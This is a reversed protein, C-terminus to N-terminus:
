YIGYKKLKNYLTTRSLGLRKAAKTLNHESDDWITIVFQKEMEDLTLTPAPESTGSLCLTDATWRTSQTMLVTREITDELRAFEGSRALTILREMAEDTVEPEPRFYTSAYRKVLSLIYTNVVNQGDSAVDKHLIDARRKNIADNLIQILRDNNWPKQVFDDAGQKLSEVALAVDGFATILVVAPPHPLHSRHKIRDLWFLGDQGDLRGAGFNMDLLVVDVDGASIIAPILQPDGVTIVTTFVGKVM